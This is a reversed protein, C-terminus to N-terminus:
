ARGEVCGCAREVTALALKCVWQDDEEMLLVIAVHVTGARVAKIRNRRSPCVAVLMHLAGGENSAVLDSRM